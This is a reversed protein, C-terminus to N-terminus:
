SERKKDKKAESFDLYICFVCLLFGPIGLLKIQQNEWINAATSASIIIIVGVIKLVVIGFKVWIRTVNQAQLVLFASTPIVLVFLICIGIITDM